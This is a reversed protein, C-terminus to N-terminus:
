KKTEKTIMMTLALPELNHLNRAFPLFVILFFTTTNLNIMPDSSLPQTCGEDMPIGCRPLLCTNSLRVVSYFDRTEHTAEQSQKTRM